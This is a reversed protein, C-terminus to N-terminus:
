QRVFKVMSARTCGAGSNTNMLSGQTGAAFPYVGLDVWGSTGAAFNTTLTQTGGSYNITMQATTDSGANAIRYVQVRYNGAALVTPTWTAIAGKNCSYRSPLGSYGPLTSDAWGSGYEAYGPENNGIYYDRVYYAVPGFSAPTVASANASYGISTLWINVRDHTRQTPPYAQSCVKSGDVYYSITEETWEIGYVHYDDASSWGPTYTKGNVLCRNNLSQIVTKNDWIIKGMSISGATNSNIEFGDIETVSSPVYTTAGDGAFIWFATHWGYTPNPQPAPDKPTKAAVEYYGYRFAEKSVIGGGVLSAGGFNRKELKINMHNAGDLSVQSPVQATVIGNASKTDKRFNWKGADLVVGDFTDSWMLEYKDPVAQAQAATSAVLCAALCAAQGGALLISSSRM